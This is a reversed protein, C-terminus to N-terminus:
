RLLEFNKYGLINGDESIVQENSIIDLETTGPKYNTLMNIKDQSLGGILDPINATSNTFDISSESLNYGNEIPFYTTYNNIQTLQINNLKFSNGTNNSAYIVQISQINNSYVGTGSMMDNDVIFVNGPTIPSNQLNFHLYAISKNINIPGNLIESIIYGLCINVGIINFVSSEDNKIICKYNFRINRNLKNYDSYLPRYICIDSYNTNLTSVHLENNQITLLQNDYYSLWSDTGSLFNNKYLLLNKELPIYINPINNAKKFGYILNYAVVNQRESWLDTESVTNIIGHNNGICDYCFLGGGEAIPYWAILNNQNDYMKIDFLQGKFYDCYTTGNFRCGIITDHYILSISTSNKQLNYETNDIILVSDKTIIVDHYNGDTIIDYANTNFYETNNNIFIIKKDSSKSIYLINSYHDISFINSFLCQDTNLPNCKIKFNIKVIDNLTDTNGIYIYDSYGNFSLCNNNNISANFAVQSDSNLANGICDTDEFIYNDSIKRPILIGDYESYGVNNCWTGYNKNPLSYLDTTFETNYKSNFVANYNNLSRDLWINEDKSINDLNLILNSATQKVTYEKNYDDITYESEDSDMEGSLIVINSLTIYSFADNAINGYGGSVPTYNSASFGILGWPLIYSDAPNTLYPSYGAGHTISAHRSLFVLEGDIYVRTGLIGGTTEDDKPIITYDQPSGITNYIDKTFIVNIKHKGLPLGNLFTKTATRYGSNEFPYYCESAGTNQDKNGYRISLRKLSPVYYISLGCYWAPILQSENDNEKAYYSNANIFIIRNNESADEWNDVDYTFSISLPLTQLVRSSNPIYAFAGNFHCANEINSKDYIWEKNSFENRLGGNDEDGLNTINKIDATKGSISDYLLLGSGEECEFLHDIKGTAKNIFAIYSLNFYDDNEISSKIRIGINNNEMCFIELIDKNGEGRLIVNYSIFSDYSIFTEIYVNPNSNDFKLCLGGFASLNKDAGCIYSKLFAGNIKQEPNHIPSTM